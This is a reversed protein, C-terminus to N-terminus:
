RFRGTIYDETISGPVMLNQKLKEIEQHFTRQHLVTDGHRNSSYSMLLRHM